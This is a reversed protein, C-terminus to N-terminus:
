DREKEIEDIFTLKEIDGEGLGLKVLQRVDGSFAIGLDKLERKLLKGSFSLFRRQSDANPTSRKFFTVYDSNYGDIIFQCLSLYFARDKKILTNRYIQSLKRDFLVKKTTTNNIYSCSKVSFRTIFIKSIKEGSQSFIQINMGERTEDIQYSIKTIDANEGFIEVIKAKILMLLDFKSLKEM